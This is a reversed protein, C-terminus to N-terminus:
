CILCSSIHSTYACKTPVAIKIGTIYLGYAKSFKDFINYRKLKIIYVHMCIFILSCALIHVCKWISPLPSYAVYSSNTPVLRVDPQQAHLQMQWCQTCTTLKCQTADKGGQWNLTYHTELALSSTWSCLYIYLYGNVHMDLTNVHSLLM